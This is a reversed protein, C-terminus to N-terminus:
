LHAWFWSLRHQKHLLFVGFVRINCSQKLCGGKLSPGKHCWLLLLYLYSILRLLLANLM